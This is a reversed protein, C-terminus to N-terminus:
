GARTTLYTLDLEPANRSREFSFQRGSIVEFDVSDVDPAESALEVSKKTWIAACALWGEHCRVVDTTDLAMTAAQEMQNGTVLNEVLDMDLDAHGEPNPYDKSELVFIVKLRPSPSSFNPSAEIRITAIRALCAGEMTEKGAKKKMRDLLPRLLPTFGEPLAVRAFHRAIAEAFVARDDDSKITGLIKADHLLSREITTIHALDAIRSPEFWPLAAFGPRRGRAVETYTLEDTELVPAVQFNPLKESSRRLDCTQSLVVVHQHRDAIALISDTGEVEAEEAASTTLPFAPDVVRVSVDPLALVDGQFVRSSALDARFNVTSATETM